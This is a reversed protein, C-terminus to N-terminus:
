PSVSLRPPYSDAQQWSKGESLVVIYYGKLRFSSPERPCFEHIGHGFGTVSYVPIGPMSLYDAVVRAEYASPPYTYVEFSTCNGSKVSFSRWGAWVFPMKELGTQIEDERTFNLVHIGLLYVPLPDPAWSCIVKCSGGSPLMDTHAGFRIINVIRPVLTVNSLTARFGSGNPCLATLALEGLRVPLFYDNPFYLTVEISYNGPGTKNVRSIEIYAPQVSFIVYLEVVEYIVLIFFLSLLIHKLKM